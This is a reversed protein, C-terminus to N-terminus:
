AGSFRKELQELQQISSGIPEITFICCSRPRSGIIVVYLWCMPSCSIQGRM